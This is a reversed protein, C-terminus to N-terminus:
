TSTRGSGGSVGLSSAASHAVVAVGAHGRASRPRPRGAHEPARRPPTCASCALMSRSSRRALQEHHAPRGPRALRRQEVQEAPEVPGVAPADPEAVRSSSRASRRPALQDVHAARSSPKTKWANPSSAPARPPRSRRPAAASARSRGRGLAICRTASGSSAPRAEGVVRLWRGSSSDPPWCCRTPM